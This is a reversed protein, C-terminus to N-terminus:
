KRWRSRKWKERSQVWKCKNVIAEAILNAIEGKNGAGSACKTITESHLLVNKLNDAGSEYEDAQNAIRSIDKIWTQIM